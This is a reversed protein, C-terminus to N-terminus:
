VTITDVKSPIGRQHRSIAERFIEMHRRYVYDSSFRDYITNLANRGHTSVLEPNAVYALMAHYVEMPDSIDLIKGAPAGWQVLDKAGSVAGILVPLGTAAAELMANSMGERSSPLVFVNAIRYYIEPNEVFGPFIVRHRLEYKSVAEQIERYYDPEMAPGVFVAQSDYGADLCKKLGQVVLLPNKKRVLAGSFIFTFRDPIGLELRLRRKDDLSAPFFRETDVGNGISLIKSKPMGVEQLEDEIEASIAFVGDLKKIMQRRAKVLGLTSKFGHKPGLDSRATAVRVFAPKNLKESVYLAPSVANHYAMVAFFVDFCHANDKLWRKGRRIFEWQSLIPFKSGGVPHILETRTFLPYQKQMPNGHALLFEETETAYRSYTRYVSMGPGGYHEGCGNM